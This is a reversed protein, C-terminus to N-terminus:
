GTEVLHRSLIIEEITRQSFLATDLTQPQRKRFFCLFKPLLDHVTLLAWGM